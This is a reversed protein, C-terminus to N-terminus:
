LYINDLGRHKLIKPLEGQYQSIFKFYRATNTAIYYWSLDTIVVYTVNEIKCRFAYLDKNLDILDGLSANCGNLPRVAWVGSVIKYKM